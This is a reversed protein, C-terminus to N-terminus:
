GRDCRRELLEVRRECRSVASGHEREKRRISQDYLGPPHFGAVFVQPVVEWAVEGERPRDFARM